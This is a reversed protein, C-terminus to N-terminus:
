EDHQKTMLWKRYLLESLFLTGMLVYSILGNYLTWIETSTYFVTYLSALINFVFFVCWVLTVKKTYIVGEEPLDPEQLRALREIVSPPKLLSYSFVILFSEKIIM